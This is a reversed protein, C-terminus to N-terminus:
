GIHNSGDCQSRIARSATPFSPAATQCSQHQSSENTFCRHRLSPSFTYLFNNRELIHLSTNYMGKAAVERLLKDIRGKPRGSPGNLEEQSAMTSGCMDLEEARVLFTTDYGDLHTLERLEKITFSAQVHGRRGVVFITRVKLDRLTNWADWSLDTDYLGGGASAAGGAKALIRACDIAVNGHGVIVVSAGGSSANQAMAKSVKDGIHHFHPHGNYWAVFERASLIGGSSEGPIQLKRDSQCGYSLVVLDYRERLEAVSVDHGVHVNGFFRVPTGDAEFLRDFDNQVQKVEPHDPAVGYRVLGYPTPLRELVDITRISCCKSAATNRDQMAKLLYKATYCGSPGSGVIAVSIKCSDDDGHRDM